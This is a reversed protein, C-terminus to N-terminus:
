FGPPLTRRSAGVMPVLWANEFLREVTRREYRASVQAPELNSTVITPRRAASRAHALNFLQEAEWETYRETGLDDLVLVPPRSYVELEEQADGPRLSQLLATTSSFRVLVPAGLRDSAPRVTLLERAIAAALWTKGTGVPGHIFLGGRHGEHYARVWRLALRGSEDQPLNAERYALPITLTLVEVKRAYWEATAQQDLEALNVPPLGAVAPARFVKRAAAALLMPPGGRPEPKNM